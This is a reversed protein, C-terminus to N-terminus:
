LVSAVITTCPYIELYQVWGTKWPLLRIWFDIYDYPWYATASSQSCLDFIPSYLTDVATPKYVAVFSGYHRGSNVLRKYKVYAVVPGFSALYLFLLGGIIISLQKATQGRSMVLLYPM